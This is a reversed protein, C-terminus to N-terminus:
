GLKNILPTSAIKAAGVTAERSGRKWGGGVMVVDIILEAIAVCPTWPEGDEEVRRLEIADITTQQSCENYSPARSAGCDVGNEVASV